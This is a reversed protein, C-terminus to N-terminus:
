QFAGNDTDVQSSVFPAGSALLLFERRSCRAESDPKNESRSDTNEKIMRYHRQHLNKGRTVGEKM